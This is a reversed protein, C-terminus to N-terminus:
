KSKPVYSLIVSSNASIPFKASSSKLHLEMDTQNYTSSVLQLTVEDAVEPIEAPFNVVVPEDTPNFAVIFGPNGSHVRIYVFTTHNAVEYFNCSGYMISPSKRINVLEDDWTDTADLIPVGPLLFTVMNMVDAPFSTKQVKWAPWHGEMLRLTEILDTRLQSAVSESRALRDARFARSQQPLDILLSGNSQFPELTTLQEYLMFVHDHADESDADPEDKGEAAKSDSEPGKRIQELVDGVDPLNEVRRHSYFGYQGVTYDTGSVAVPEEDAFSADVLLRPVGRLRVGGGSTFPTTPTSINLHSLNHILTRAHSVISPSRYNLQPQRLANTLYFQRRTPSYVWSPSDDPNLWNNPLNPEGSANFGRGDAWVYYDEFGAEKKESREFWKSSYLLDVDLILRLKAAAVMTALEDLVPNSGEAVSFPDTSPPLSAIVGTAGQAALAALVSASPNDISIEVLPGSEWWTKPAPPVCKPAAVIILVAGILMGAWLLWFSIFLFWRLRVWFPDNAFRLLEEKSLGVYGSKVEGIDLKADGNQKDGKTFKVDAVNINSNSGVKCDKDPLMKEDARDSEIANSSSKALSKPRTLPKEEMEDEPIPKYTANPILQTTTTEKGSNIELKKASEM